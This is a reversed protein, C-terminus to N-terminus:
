RERYEAKLRGDLSPASPPLFHIAADTILSVMALYTTQWM